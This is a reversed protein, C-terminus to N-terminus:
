PAVSASAVLMAAVEEAIAQALNPPVANGIQRAVSIKSGSWVFDRSFTQLLAAELHTIPRHQEPHLYRGKEPKFFETRITLSPEDWRLRGFVDTSGTPKELWCRPTIEPAKRMLDFRNGGPPILKYRALSEDRPSRNFHLDDGSSLRDTGLKRGDGQPRALDSIADAVNQAKSPRPEPFRPEGVRSGIVIARRRKQPVGFDASNLVEARVDYGLDEVYNVLAAYEASKLIQPVNELVFVAPRVTTLVRAYERWLGNLALNSGDGTMRGLPSFGQCPPGGIVVDAAPFRSSEVDEIPEAAVHDGFNARYTNAADQDLEVAFVPIIGAARFGATM